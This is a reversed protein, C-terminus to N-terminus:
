KKNGLRKIKRILNKYRIEYYHWYLKNEKIKSLYKVNIKENYNIFKNPPIIMFSGENLSEVENIMPRKQLHIYAEENFRLKKEKDLYCQFLKGKDFLYVIKEKKRENLARENLDYIGRTNILGYRDIRIDSFWIPKYYIQYNNKLLIRNIGKNNGWEDFAYNDRNTFVDKYKYCDKAELTRYAEVIEKTNKYLTFHGSDSIKDYKKLIEETYFISLRGWILDTDCYGWYDYEKLYDKFIEGYAPRFDCLKYPSELAIEFEFISNIKRKMEEFTTYYIHVNTPYQYNTKDDTFILWDFDTNYECSKLWLQFYNNFKGFYPIILAKKSM